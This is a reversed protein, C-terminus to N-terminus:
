GNYIGLLKYRTLLSFDHFHIDATLPNTSRFLYRHTIGEILGYDVRHRPSGGSIHLLGDSAGDPTRRYHPLHGTILPIHNQSTRSVQHRLSSFVQSLGDGVFLAFYDGFPTALYLPSDM